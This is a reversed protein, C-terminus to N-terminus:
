TIMGVVGEGTKDVMHQAMRIFKVYDNSLWKGQAPKKLKDSQKYDELLKLIWPDKNTSEGAYPPNGIVCMIPYNDKIDTAGQAEKKLWKAFPLSPIDKNAGALSNTLYISMRKPRNKTPEYGLDALVMDLKLYCMVYPAMMFEFGHLRPLLDKDVYNSWHDPAFEKVTKEIQRITQALFTGTGTAPDLIQLKHVERFEDKYEEGEKRDLKWTVVTKESNALGGDLKFERKLVLDVARVIFDVVPEPTYYVGSSKREEPNYAQLFDEYFHLFPDERGTGRGYTAMIAEVDASRYLNALDDISWDLTDTLDESAIFKFLDKLFPYTTPLLKPAEQRSFTVPNKSYLRAIFMGYTITQAYMDAFNKANIDKVLMKKFADHQEKLDEILTDADKSTLSKEFAYRIMHTRKAMYETLEQATKITKPRQDLFDLLYDALEDFNDPKPKIQGGRIEAISVSRVLNGNLYFDWKLCDTYILNDLDNTYREFQNKNAPNTFNRIREGINKAEIYGIAIDEHMLTIDPAGCRIRKAENIARVEGAGLTDCLLTLAPRYTHETVKGTEYTLKVTKMFERIARKNNRDVM